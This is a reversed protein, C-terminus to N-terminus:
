KFLSQGFRTEKEWQEESPVPLVNGAEERKKKREKERKFEGMESRSGM